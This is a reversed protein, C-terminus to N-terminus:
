ISARSDIRYKQLLELNILKPNIQHAFIHPIITLEPIFYICYLYNL